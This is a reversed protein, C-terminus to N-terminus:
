PKSNEALMEDAEALLRDRAERELLGENDAQLSKWTPVVAADGSDTQLIQHNPM